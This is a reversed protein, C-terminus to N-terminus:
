DLLRELLEEVDDLIYSWSLTTSYQWATLEEEGLDEFICAARGEAIAPVGRMVPDARLKDMSCEYDIFLLADAEFLDTREDSVEVGGDDSAEDVASPVVLGFAQPLQTRDATSDYLWSLAPNRDGVNVTKGAWDPHRDAIAKMRDELESVADAAAQPRGVAKGVDEMVLEIPQGMEAYGERHTVTPAIQSLRDYVDSDEVRTMAIILDPETAAIQEYDVERDTSAQPLEGEIVESQWSTPFSEHYDYTWVPTVGVALLYDVDVWGLAVVRTPAEEITTEGFAHEITVPLAGEEVEATSQAGTAAATDGEEASCGTLGLGCVLAIAAGVATIRRGIRM